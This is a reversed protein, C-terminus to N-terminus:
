AATNASSTYIVNVLSSDLRELALWSADTQTTSKGTQRELGGTAYMPCKNWTCGKRESVKKARKQAESRSYTRIDLKGLRCFAEWLNTPAATPSTNLVKASQLIDLFEVLGMQSLLNAFFDKKDSQFVRGIRILHDHLGVRVATIEESDNSRTIATDGLYQWALLGRAVLPVFDARFVEDSFKMIRLPSGSLYCATMFTRLTLTVMESDLLGGEFNSKHLKWYGICISEGLEKQTQLSCPRTKPGRASPPFRPHSLIGFLANVTSKYDADSCRESYYTAKLINAFATGLKEHDGHIRTNPPLRGDFVRSLRNVTRTILATNGHNIVIFRLMLEALAESERMKLDLAHFCLAPTDESAQYEICGLDVLSELIGSKPANERVIRGQFKSWCQHITLPIIEVAADVIERDRLLPRVAFHKTEVAAVFISRICTFLLASITGQQDLKVIDTTSLLLLTTLGIDAARQWVFLQFVRRQGPPTLDRNLRELAELLSPRLTTAEAVPLVEQLARLHLDLDPVVIRPGLSSPISPITEVQFAKQTSNHDCRHPAVNPYATRHFTKKRDEDPSSFEEKEQPKNRPVDYPEIEPQVEIKPSVGSIDSDTEEQESPVIDLRDTEEDYQIVDSMVPRESPELSWMRNMVLWLPHDRHLATHEEPDPNGDMWALEPVPSDQHPHRGSLVALIVGAFAYVDISATLNEQQVIEPAYYGGIASSRLSPAQSPPPGFTTVIYNLGFDILIARGRDDVLFETPHVAGHIVPPEGTHLHMVCHAASILLSIKEQENLEPQRRAYQLINGGTTRPIVVCPNDDLRYGHPKLVYRPDRTGQELIRRKLLQVSSRRWAEWEANNATASRGPLDLLKVFVPEVSVQDHRSWEAAHVKDSPLLEAFSTAPLLSGQLELFSQGHTLESQRVHAM